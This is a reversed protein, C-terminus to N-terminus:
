GAMQSPEFGGMGRLAQNKLERALDFSKAESTERLAHLLTLGFDADPFPDQLYSERKQDDALYAELRDAPMVPQGLFAAYKTYVDYVFGHVVFGLAPRGAEVVQELRYFALWIVRKAWEAQRATQRVRPKAVWERGARQLAAGEGGRDFLIRASAFQSQAIRSNDAHFREFTSEYYGRTNVFVEVLHGQFRWLGEGPVLTPDSALISLDIDSRETALGHAHSGFLLVAEVAPNGRWREALTDIVWQAPPRACRVGAAKRSKGDARLTM